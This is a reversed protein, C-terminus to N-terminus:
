KETIAKGIDWYLSIIGHNVTRAVAARAGQIRGELDALFRDYEDAPIALTM